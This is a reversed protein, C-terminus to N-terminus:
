YQLNALNKLYDLTQRGFQFSKAGLLYKWIYFFVCLTTKISFLSHLNAQNRQLLLFNEGKNKNM